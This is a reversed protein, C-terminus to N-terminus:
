NRCTWYNAKITPWYLGCVAYRPLPCAHALAPIDEELHTTIFVDRWTLSAVDDTAMPSLHFRGRVRLPNIDAAVANDPLVERAQFATLVLQAVRGAHSEISQQLSGGSASGRSLLQGNAEGDRRRLDIIGCLVAFIEPLHQVDDLIVLRNRHALLFAESGDLQRQASPLDLDLTNGSREREAIALTTKCSQRPGLM